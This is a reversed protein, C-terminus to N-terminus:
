QCSGELIHKAANMQQGKVVGDIADIGTEIGDVVGRNIRAEARPRIQLTQGGGDVHHGVHDHVM